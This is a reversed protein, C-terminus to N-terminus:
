DFSPLIRVRTNAAFLNLHFQWPFSCKRDDVSMKMTRNTRENKLEIKRIDCDILLTVPDNQRIEITQETIYQGNAYIHNVTTWGYTSPSSYSMLQMSESKSIIGIFIWPNEKLHEIRFRLIHRGTIYEKKGRIETHNSSDDKVILQGEDEIRAKSHVRAFLDLIDQREIRFTTVLPTSDERIRVKVPNLLKRKLEEIKQTWQRLDIESFDNEERGHILENSLLRLKQKVQTTHQTAGKLVENRAEEAVQRVKVISEKEWQDIKKLFPHQQADEIQQNLSHQVLDHTVAIEELQKNLENRHDISHKPCFSQSCGECKYIGKAKNCTVCLAKVLTTSSAM